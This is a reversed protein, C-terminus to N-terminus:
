DTLRLVVHECFEIGIFSFVVNFDEGAFLRTLLLMIEVNRLDHRGGDDPLLTM